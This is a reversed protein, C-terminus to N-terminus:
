GVPVDFFTAPDLAEIATWRPAPLDVAEEEGDRAMRYGQLDLALWPNQDVRLALAYCTALMHLCRQNRARCSCDANALVPALTIGAARLAAHVDDGLTLAGAPIHDAIARVTAAPLPTLELYTVSAEAGRHIAAKVHVGDIELQVGGNRAVSRARPLLPEPKTLSLPEALRVWDKGWPTYGFDNDPM